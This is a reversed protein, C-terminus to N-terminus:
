LKVALVLKFVSQLEVIAEHAYMFAVLAGSSLFDSADSDALVDTENSLTASTQPTSISQRILQQRM